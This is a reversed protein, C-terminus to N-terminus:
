TALPLFLGSVNLVQGWAGNGPDESYLTTQHTHTQTQLSGCLPPLASGPNPWSGTDFTFM